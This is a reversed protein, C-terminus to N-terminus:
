RVRSITPNDLGTDFNQFIFFFTPDGYFFELRDVDQITRNWAADPSAEPCGELVGWGPSLTTADAPINFSYSQWGDAPTPAFKSGVFYVTCDDSPDEPTGPDSILLVSLPREDASFDVRLTEFDAGVSIVRTARYDGTFESDVGLATAAQPAFTDNFRAQLFRGRNGGKSRVFQFGGNWSWQGENSTNGFTETFTTTQRARGEQEEPPGVPSPQPRAGFSVAATVAFIAIAHM